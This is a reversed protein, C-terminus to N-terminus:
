RNQRFLATKIRKVSPLLRKFAGGIQYHIRTKADFSGEMEITSQIPNPPIRKRIQAILGRPDKLFIELSQLRVGSAWEREVARILWPPIGRAEAAFPLDDINLDLYKHALGITALIWRRRTPSVVNLCRDWDFDEPRNAVAYYIDWLRERYGGGDNLWHVCLVRFHDEPRLMRVPTGEIDILVSNDFLDDWDVTDYHRLGRHLDIIFGHSGVPGSFLAAADFDAPSVALDVDASNRFHDEPYNLHAALGKILIPEIGKERFLDFARASNVRQIKRNLTNWRDQDTSEPETNM